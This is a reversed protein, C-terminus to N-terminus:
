MMMMMTMKKMGTTAGGRGRRPEGTHGAFHQTAEEEEHGCGVMTVTMMMMMMMMMMM